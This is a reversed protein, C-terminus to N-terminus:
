FKFRVSAGYTKPPSPYGSLTGSQAVGPFIVPNYQPETLNRGWATLELGNSLALSVSANLTEPSAKFSLGQAIQFASAHDFDVHFIASLNDSLHHTYTTGVAVSYQSIGSPKVGTLNTPVVGNTLPNFASGGTFLDFKPDLYTLSATFVLDRIPTLTADFELGTTSQKEANGM